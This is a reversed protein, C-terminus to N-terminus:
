QTLSERLDALAGAISGDLLMDGAQIRLGGIIERDVGWQISAMGGFDRRVQELIQEREANEIEFASTIELALRKKLLDVLASFAASVEPLIAIRGNELLLQAFNVILADDNGVRKALAEVVAAREALIIGPHVLAARLNENESWAATLANLASVASELKAPELSEFIARAYRKAVKSPTKAM